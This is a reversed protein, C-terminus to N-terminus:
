GVDVRDREIAMAPNECQPLDGIWKVFDMFSGNKVTNIDFGNPNLLHDTILFADMGLELCALDEATNNGVVLVEEPKAGCAKLNEEFYALKPKVSTSNEYHTIRSFRRSNVGAWLLRWEVAREPFMPMTTLLLPYGRDHLTETVHRAFVSPEVNDGIKGFESRYFETLLPEWNEYTGGATPLFADWYAEANTKGDDHSAMAAIGSKLGTKFAEPDFESAAVYDYISGMYGAMFEDLDMPLLTGDLDFFIARYQRENM